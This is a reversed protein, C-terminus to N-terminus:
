GFRPARMKRVYAEVDTMDERDRWMGLMPNETGVVKADSLVPEEEIRITVKTSGPANIREQWDEPLDSVPVHQIVVANM